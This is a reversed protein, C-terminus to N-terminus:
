SPEWKLQKLAHVPVVRGADTQDIVVIYEPHFEIRKVQEVRDSKTTKDAFVCDMTVRYNGELVWNLAKGPTAATQATTPTHSSVVLAAAILSLAVGAKVSASM